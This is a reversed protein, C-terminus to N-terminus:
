DPYIFQAASERKKLMLSINLLGEASVHNIVGVFNKLTNKETKYQVLVHEGATLKSPSPPTPPQTVDESASESDTLAIPLEEESSSSVVEKPKFRYKKTVSKMQRAAHEQQLREKEPTDTLIAAKKRKRGTQKYTRPAAKPIPLIDSPTVIKPKLVAQPTSSIDTHSQASTSPISQQSQADTHTQASTSPISQQSQADTHAQASTSPTSQRSTVDTNTQSLTSQVSQQSRSTSQVSQQSRSTSQVLQQSQADTNTQASTSQVPQQSQADTHTQASTSPVLQRSTVDTVASSVTDEMVTCRDSPATVAPYPRDTVDSPLFDEETFIDTNLPFIGTSRFGSIINTPSAASTFARGTLEAIQWITVTKGPNSRMWDDAARNYSAKMPGYVTKDLPQLRHSTHPPLTLIVVGNDKAVTVAALSCHSEHNDMLLLVPHEMSCRSQAIFMPLYIQAFIDSTMWGSGSATGNAGAVAGGLFASNWRKRPFIYFPAIANGIANIACVFTVLEGREASTVAGVQKKGRVSVIKSPAQVTTFGTEDLNYIDGPGLQWKEYVDSLKQFFEGVTSRNFATSRAMSTAEPKRCSLRHREQFGAFWDKGAAKNDMWNKPIGTVGNLQAFEYALQMCKTPTIGHYRNDLDKVHSALMEEFESTFVLNASKCKSYGFAKREAENCKLFRQLTTNPVNHAIAAQRISLKGEEIQKAAAAPHSTDAGRETKKAYKRGM